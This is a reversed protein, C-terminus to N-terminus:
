IKYEKIKKRLTNRNIGLIESAKIQVGGVHSLTKTILIREIEGIFRDHLGSEPKSGDHMDFFNDLRAEIAEAFSKDQASM